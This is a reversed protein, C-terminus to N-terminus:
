PTSMFVGVQAGETFTPTTKATGELLTGKHEFGAITSTGTYTGNTFEGGNTLGILFCNVGHCTGKIEKATSHVTVERTKGAGINTYVVGDKITKQPPINLTVGISPVTITIENEETGSCEIEVPAHEEETGATLVTDSEFVYACHHTHVIVEAGSIKDKCNSPKTTNGYTPTVTVTDAAKTPVTGEFKVTSCTLAAKGATFEESCAGTPDCSGTLVTPEVESNFTHETTEVAQAGQAVLASMAFIAALALGLAKLNRRM